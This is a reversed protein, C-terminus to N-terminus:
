FFKDDGREGVEGAGGNRGEGELRRVMASRMPSVVAPHLEVGECVVALREAAASGSESARVPWPDATASSSSARAAASTPDGPRPPARGREGAGVLSIRHRLELESMPATPPARARESSDAEVEEIRSEGYRNPEGAAM